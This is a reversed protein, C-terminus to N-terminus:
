SEGAQKGIRYKGLPGENKSMNDLVDYSHRQLAEAQALLGIIQQNNRLVAKAEIRPDDCIFTCKVFVESAVEHLLEELKYGTTNDRGMLITM